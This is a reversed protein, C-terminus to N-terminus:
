RQVQAACTARKKAPDTESSQATCDRYRQAYRDFNDRAVEPTKQLLDNIYTRSGIEFHQYDVPFNWDGGWILFGHRAFIDLVLEAMGSRPAKGARTESRNVFTKASDPPLITAHGEDDFALYPNQVPNIDIAVGYAHKSWDGGGTIPRGNFASTNNDRMAAQDDGKYYEMLRAKGLPFGHTKLDAFIGATQTAVVDLVVVNGTGTTGEFDVYDFNVRRLRECPVPNDDQIVQAARMRACDEATVPLVRAASPRPDAHTCSPLWLVCFLFLIPRVAVPM